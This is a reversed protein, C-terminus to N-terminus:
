CATDSGLRCWSEAHLIQYCSLFAQDVISEQKLQLIDAPLEKM